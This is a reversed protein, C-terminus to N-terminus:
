IYFIAWLGRKSLSSGTENHLIAQSKIAKRTGIGSNFHAVKKKKKVRKNKDNM